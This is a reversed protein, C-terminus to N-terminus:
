KLYTPLQKLIAINQNREWLKKTLVVDKSTHKTKLFSNLVSLFFSIHFKVYAINKAFFKVTVNKTPEGTSILLPTGALCACHGRNRTM